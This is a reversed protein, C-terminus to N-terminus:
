VAAIVLFRGAGPEHLVRHGATPRKRRVGLSSDTIDVAFGRAIAFGVRDVNTDPETFPERLQSARSLEAAGNGATILRCRFWCQQRSSVACHACPTTTALTGFQVVKLTTEGGGRSCSASHPRLARNRHLKRSPGADIAPSGAGVATLHTLEGTIKQELRHPSLGIWRRSATAAQVLEDAGEVVGNSQATGSQTPVPNSVWSCGADPPAEVVALVRPAGLGAGPRPPSTPSRAM